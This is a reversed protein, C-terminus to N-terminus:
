YMEINVPANLCVVSFNWHFISMAWDTSIYLSQNICNADIASDNLNNGVLQQKKLGLRHQHYEFHPGFRAKLKFPHSTVCLKIAILKNVNSM